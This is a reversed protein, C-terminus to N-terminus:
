LQEELLINGDRDYSIIDVIFGDSYNIVENLKGDDYFFYSTGNVNGNIYNDMAYIQGNEHYRIRYGERVGRKWKSHEQMFGNEFYFYRDGDLVGNDYTGIYRIQGNAYYFVSEGQRQNNRWSSVAYLNGNPFTLSVTGSEAYHEMVVDEQEEFTSPSENSLIPQSQVLAFSTFLFVFLICFSKKM